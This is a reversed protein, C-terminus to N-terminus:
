PARHRQQRARTTVRHVAARRADLQRHYSVAGEEDGARKGSRSRDTGEAVGDVWTARHVARSARLATKAAQVGIGATRGTSSDAQVCLPRRGVPHLHRGGPLQDAEVRGDGQVAEAVPVGAQVVMDAAMDIVLYWLFPAGAPTSGREGLWGVLGPIEDAIENMTTMTVTRTVGVFPQQPLTVVAYARPQPDTM